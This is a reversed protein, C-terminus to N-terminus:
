KTMPSPNAPMAGPAPQSVPQMATGTSTNTVFVYSFDAVTSCTNNDVKYHDNQSLKAKLQKCIAVPTNPLVVVYANASQVTFSITTGWPTNISNNPMLSKIKEATIDQATFNGNNMQALGDVAATISDMTMLLSKFQGDAMAQNDTFLKTINDVFTKLDTTPAKSVTIKNNALALTFNYHNDQSIVYGNTILSNLLQANAEQDRSYLSSLYNFLPTAISASMNVAIKDAIEMESAPAGTLSLKMQLAGNGLNTDLGLSFDMKSDKTLVDFSRNLAGAKLTEKSLDLNNISVTQTLNTIKTLPYAFPIDLAALKANSQYSILDNNMDLALQYNLNSLQFSMGQRQDYTINNINFSSTGSLQNDSTFKISQHYLIPSANIKPMGFAYGDLRLAGIAVSNDADTMRHSATRLSLDGSLGDWQFMGPVSLSSIVYHNLWVKGFEEIETFIAMVPDDDHTIQKIANQEMESLVLTTEASGFGLKYGHMTKIIPGHHIVSAFNINHAGYMKYPNSITIQATSSLWGSHYSTIQLSDQLEPPLKSKLLAIKEILESKCKLGIFYPASLAAALAVLSVVSLTRM